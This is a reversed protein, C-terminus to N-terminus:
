VADDLVPYEKVMIERAIRYLREDIVRLQLMARMDRFGTVSFGPASEPCPRPKGIGAKYLSRSIQRNGDQYHCQERRHQRYDGRRHFKRGRPRDEEPVLSFAQVPDLEIAKLESCHDDTGVKDLM